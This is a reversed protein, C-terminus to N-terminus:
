TKSIKFEFELIFNDFNKKYFLDDKGGIRHIVGNSIEWGKVPHGEGDSWDSLDKADTLVITKEAVFSVPAKTKPEEVPVVTFTKKNKDFSGPKVEAANLVTLLSLLAFVFLCSTFRFM